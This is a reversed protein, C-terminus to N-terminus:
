LQEILKVELVQNRAIRVTRGRKNLYVYDADRSLLTGQQEVTGDNPDRSTVQVPFGKFSLFDRDSELTDSLGPSSIELVYADPIINAEDLALEFSRSMRECDELGTDGVRSRIDLRLVPPSQNTYFVAQVVELDLDDAIPRALDLIAPILPHAM